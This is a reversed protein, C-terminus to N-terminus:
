PKQEMVPTMSFCDLHEPKAKHLSPTPAMPLPPVQLSLTQRVAGAVEKTSSPTICIQIKRISQWCCPARGLTPFSGTLFCFSIHLWENHDVFSLEWKM